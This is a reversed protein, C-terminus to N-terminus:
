ISYYEIMGNRFSTRNMESRGEYYGKRGMRWLVRRLISSVRSGTIDFDFGIESVTRMDGSETGIGFRERVIYEDRSSFTSLMSDVNESLITEDFKEESSMDSSVIEEVESGLNVLSDDLEIDLVKRIKMYRERDHLSMGEWEIGDRVM